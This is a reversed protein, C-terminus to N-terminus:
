KKFDNLIVKYFELRTKIFEDCYKDNPYKEQHEKLMREYVDIYNSLYKLMDVKKM